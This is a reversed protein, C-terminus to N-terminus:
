FKHSLLDSPSSISEVLLSLSLSKSIYSSMPLLPANTLAFCIPVRPLCLLCPANNLVVRCIPGGEFLLPAFTLVCMNSGGPLCMCGYSIPSCLYLIQALISLRLFDTLICSTSVGPLCLLSPANNLVPYCFQAGESLLPALTLM